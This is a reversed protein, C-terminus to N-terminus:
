MITELVFFSLFCADYFFRSPLKDWSCSICRFMFHVITQLVGSRSLVHLCEMQTLYVKYEMYKNEWVSVCCWFSRKRFLLQRNMDYDEWTHLSLRNMKVVLSSAQVVWRNEWTRLCELKVMSSLGARSSQRRPDFLEFLHTKGHILFNIWSIYIEKIRLIKKIVNSKVFIITFM